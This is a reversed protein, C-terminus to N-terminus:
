DEKVHKEIYQALEVIKKAAPSTPDRKVIPPRMGTSERVKMDDSITTIIPWGLAEKIRKQSLEFDKGLVRNIVIGIIPVKYQEAAHIVQLANAVAPYDPTTIVIIEDCAKMTSITDVGLSPASDLFMVKYKRRLPQLYDGLDIRHGIYGFGISGFITHLEEYNKIAKEVSIERALVHHLTPYPGLEDFYIALNPSTLNTDV